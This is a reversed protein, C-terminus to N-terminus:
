NDSGITTEFGAKAYFGLKLLLYDKATIQIASQNTQGALTISYILKSANALKDLDSKSLELKIETNNTKTVL